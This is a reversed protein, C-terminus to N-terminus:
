TEVDFFCTLFHLDILDFGLKIELHSTQFERLSFTWFLFASLPRQRRVDMEPSVTVWFPEADRCRAVEFFM